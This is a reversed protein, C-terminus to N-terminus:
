KEDAKGEKRFQYLSWYFKFIFVILTTWLNYVLFILFGLGYFSFCILILILYSILVAWQLSKLRLASIFEDEEKEKTFVIMLLGLTVGLMAFENTLNYDEFGFTISEFSGTARQFVHFGPIKFDMTMCAIGLATFVLFILWGFVKFKNPLLLSNKMNDIKNSCIYLLISM